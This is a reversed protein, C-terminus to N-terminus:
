VVKPDRGGDLLELECPASRGCLRVTLKRAGNGSQGATSWTTLALWPPGFGQSRDAEHSLEAPEACHALPSGVHLASTVRRLLDNALQALGIPHDGLALGDGLDCLGQFDRLVREM